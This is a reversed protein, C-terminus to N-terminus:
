GAFNIFGPLVFEDHWYAGLGVTGMVSALHHRVDQPDFVKVECMNFDSGRIGCVPPCGQQTPHNISVTSKWSVLGGLLCVAPFTLPPTEPSASTPLRVKFPQWRIRHFATLAPIFLCLPRLVPM